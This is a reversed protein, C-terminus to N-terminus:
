SMKAAINHGMRRLPRRPRARWIAMMSAFVLVLLGGSVIINSDAADGRASVVGVVALVAAIMGILHAGIDMSWGWRRHALLGVAAVLLAISALAGAIVTPAMVGAAIGNTAFALSAIIFIGGMVAAVAGIARETRRRTWM